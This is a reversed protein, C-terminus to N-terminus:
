LGLLNTLTNPPPPFRGFYLLYLRPSIIPPALSKQIIVSSLGLNSSSLLILSSILTPNSLTPALYISIGSRASAM